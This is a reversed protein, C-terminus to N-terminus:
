QLFKSIFALSEMIQKESLSNSELTLSKDGLADKEFGTFIGAGPKQHDKGGAVGHVHFEFARGQLGAFEERKIGLKQETLVMHGLDILIGLNKRSVKKLLEKFESPKILVYLPLPPMNEVAVSIGYYQAYDCVQGLTNAGIEMARQESIKESMQMNNALIDATYGFHASFLSGELKNILEISAKASAMVAKQMKQSASCMNLMLKEGSPPFNAHVIFNANTEKKYKLLPKLGPMPSHAAGLEINSIKLRKYVDLVHMVDKEFKGEGGRLCSTSAFIM